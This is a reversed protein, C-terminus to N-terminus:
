QHSFLKPADALAKFTYIVAGDPGLGGFAFAQNTGPKIAVTSVFITTGKQIGEFITQFKPNGIEGYPRGSRDFLPMGMDLLISTNNHKLEVCTGGIEESGRYIIIKM